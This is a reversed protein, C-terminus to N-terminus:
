HGHDPFGATRLIRRGMSAERLASNPSSMEYPWDGNLLRAVRVIAVLLARSAYFLSLLSGPPVGYRAASVQSSELHRVPDVILAEYGRVDEDAAVTRVADAAEPFVVAVARRVAPILDQERCSWPGLGFLAEKRTLKLHSHWRDAPGAMKKYWGDGLPLVGVSCIDRALKVRRPLVLRLCTNCMSQTLRHAPCCCCSYRVGPRCHEDTPNQKERSKQARRRSGEGSVGTIFRGQESM